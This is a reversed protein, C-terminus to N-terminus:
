IRIFTRMNENSKFSSPKKSSYAGFPGSGRAKITITEKFSFEEIAGGSNYMDILGLPAFHLKEDIEKIPSITFIECELVGLSVQITKNKPVKGSNFAYAACDGNWTEGVIEELFEVDLPSVHGTIQAATSTSSPSSDSAEKM